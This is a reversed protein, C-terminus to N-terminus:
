PCGADFASQFALFDFITFDGDGDFDAIPDMADFATQFALFDFITLSGDGDIDAPCPNPEFIYAAGARDVPGDARTASIAITHGEIHVGNGFLDSSDTDSGILQQSFRWQDNEQVFLYAAGASSGLTRDNQAGVVVMDGDIAVTGFTAGQTAPSPLEVEQIWDSADRRFIFTRGSFFDSRIAGVIARDGDLDVDWGFSDNGGLDAGVLKATETWSGATLEFVYAAGTRLDNSQSGTDGILMTDGDIAIASGFEGTGSADSATLKATQPWADGDREYVYAAGDEGGTIAGVVITDGEIAVSYGFRDELAGDDAVLETVFQWEGDSREYVYATGADVAVGDALWAGVVAVDGSVAVASGYDAGTEPTPQRLEVEQTWALGNRVFIYAAGENESSGPYRPAGVILREGDFGSAYGLQMGEVADAATLRQAQVWSQGLAAGSMALTMGIVTMTKMMM